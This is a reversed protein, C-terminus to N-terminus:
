QQVYVVVVSSTEDKVSFVNIELGSKGTSSTLMLINFSSPICHSGSGKNTSFIASFFSSPPLAGFLPSEAYTSNGSFIQHHSWSEIKCQVERMRQTWTARWYKVDLPLSSSTNTQVLCRGTKQDCALMLLIRLGLQDATQRVLSVAHQAKSWRYLLVSGFKLSYKKSINRKM